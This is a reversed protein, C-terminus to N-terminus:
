EENENLKFAFFLKITKGMLEKECERDSGDVWTVIRCHQPQNAPLRTFLVDSGKDAVIQNISGWYFTIDNITENGFAVDNTELIINDETSPSTAFSYSEEVNGDTHYSIVSNIKRYEYTTNPIWIFKLDANNNEDVTYFATRMSGCIIKDEIQGTGGDIFSTDELYINTELGIKMYFDMVLAYKNVTNTVETYGTLGLTRLTSGDELEVDTESIIPYFFKKGNGSVNDFAFNINVPINLSNRQITFDTTDSIFLNKFAGASIEIDTTNARMTNVYWSYALSTLSFIMTVGIISATIIEKKFGKM